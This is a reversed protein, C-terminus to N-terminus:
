KYRTCLQLVVLELKRIKPSIRRSKKLVSLPLDTPEARADHLMRELNDMGAEFDMQLWV